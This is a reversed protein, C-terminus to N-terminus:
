LGAERCLVQWLAYDVARLRALLQQAAAVQAHHTRALEVCRAAVKGFQTLAAHTGAMRNVPTLSTECIECYCELVCGLPFDEGEFLLREAEASSMIKALLRLILSPLQALVAAHFCPCLQSLLLM